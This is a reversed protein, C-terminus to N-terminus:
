RNNTEDGPDLAEEFTLRRGIVTSCATAIVTGDVDLIRVRSDPETFTDANERLTTTNNTVEFSGALSGDPNLRFLIFFARFRREGTREWIGQGSSFSTGQAQEVIPTAAVLVAGGRVYTHLAPGPEATPERTDCDIPTVEVRWTGALTPKKPDRPRQASGDEGVVLGPVVMLALLVPLVLGSILTHQRTQMDPDGKM